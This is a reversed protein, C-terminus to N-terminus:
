VGTPHRRAFIAALLKEIMPSLAAILNIITAPDIAKPADPGAAMAKPAAAAECHSIAQDCAAVLPDANEGPAPASVAIPKGFNFTANVADAVLGLANVAIDRADGTGIAALEGRVHEALSGMGITDLLDAALAAVAHFDGSALAAQAARFRAAISILSFM